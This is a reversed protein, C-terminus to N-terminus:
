AANKDRRRETDRWLTEADQGDGGFCNQFGECSPLVTVLVLGSFSVGSVEYNGCCSQQGDRM